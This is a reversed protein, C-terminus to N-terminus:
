LEIVELKQRGFKLARALDYKAYWDVSNTYRRNMRDKVICEGLGEIKLRQGIKHANSACVNYSVQCINTGDASICPSADTEQERSTYMTITRIVGRSVPIQDIAKTQDIKASKRAHITPAINASAERELRTGTFGIALSALMLASLIIIKHKHVLKNKKNKRKM